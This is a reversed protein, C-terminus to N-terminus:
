DLEQMQIIHHLKAPMCSQLEKILKVSEQTNKLDDASDRRSPWHEEYLELEFSDFLKAAREQWTSM